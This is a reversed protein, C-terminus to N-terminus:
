SEEPETPTSPDYNEDTADETSAPATIGYIRAARTILALSERAERLSEFLDLKLAVLDEVREHARILREAIESRDDRMMQETQEVGVIGVGGDYSEIEIYEGESSNALVEDVTFARPEDAIDSM